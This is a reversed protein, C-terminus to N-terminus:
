TSSVLKLKANDLKHRQVWHFYGMVAIILYVLYQIITLYLGNCYFLIMASINVGFWLYWGEIKKHVSLYMATFILSTLLSDLLPTKARSLGYYAFILYSTYTLIIFGLFLSLALLREKISSYSYALKPRKDADKETWRWVGLVNMVVYYLNVLTQGYIHKSLDIYIYASANLLGIIFGWFNGKALLLVSLIGSIMGLFELSVLYNYIINLDFALM